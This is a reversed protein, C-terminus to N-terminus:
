KKYHNNKL